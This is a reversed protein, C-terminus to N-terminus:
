VEPLGWPKRYERRLLKNAQEDDVVTEKAADWKIKRGVLMSINALQCTSTSRHGVEIDANPEEERRVCRLFHQGHKIFMNVEPGGDVKPPKSIGGEESYVEWERRTIVLTGNVGYFAMGHRRKEIPRANAQRHEYVLDFDPYNFITAQTDPTDTNQQHIRMAGSSSVSIPATVGMCWQIIDILHIGWDAQQGGAYDWHWRWNWHFRNPNFRRKRAPGLWLDYDVSAPAEGDPPFGLSKKNSLIWARCMCIKGLKGSDIYDKAKIFHDGSRQQTGIFMLRNYKRAAKVMARGEVINHSVPKEVFVDKGAQCAEMACIAHWHDPTSVLVADIDKRDLLRRFDRSVAPRKAQAEFVKDATAGSHSDDPDALAVCEAQEKLLLLLNRSGRSGCGILGLRIQSNAGGKALVSTPLGAM